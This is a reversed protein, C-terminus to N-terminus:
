KPSNIRSRRPLRAISRSGLELWQLTVPWYSLISNGSVTTNKTSTILEIGYRPGAVTPEFNGVNNNSIVAGDLGEAYIGLLGIQNSSTSNVDNGTILVSGNGSAPSAACLIGILGKQISNNQITINTFYGPTGGVSGDSIVVTGALNAGNNCITNKLTSNAIPVTSLSGYIIVIPSNVNTNRLTLNRSTTGNNSGDITVNSSLIRIIPENSRNGTVMPSLGAAPKILLSVTGAGCGTNVIQYLPFANTETILPDIIEVTTNGSLGVNNIVNFLGGATTLTSFDGAAGVQMFTPLANVISYISIAGGVPFAAATLDVSSPLAAFTTGSSVGVNPTVAMDQAVVFYQITNGSTVGGSLLAYDIVFNFPSSTNTAEVYKWGLTANTNNIWVNGDGVRQYYVRPRTGVMTNVGDIDIITATFNRTTTCSSQALPTFSIVPGIFDFYHLAKDAVTISDAAFINASFLFAVAPLLIKRM